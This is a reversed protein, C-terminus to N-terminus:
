VTMEPVPLQVVDAIAVTVIVEDGVMAIVGENDVIHTPCLTTSVELPDPGNVHVALEPDLGGDAAVTVTEGKVVVVQVTKDPVPVQVDVATAVTDIDKVGDIAIVGERDEIQKPCLTAKDDLPLPGKVQLALVPVVGGAAALTVTVGVLVVVQVTKDPDPVQVAVATAVTEIEVTGAIAM